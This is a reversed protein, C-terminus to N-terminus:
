ELAKCWAWASEEPVLVHAQRPGQNPYKLTEAQRLVDDCTLRGASLSGELFGALALQSCAPNESFFDHGVNEMRLLVSHANKQAMLTYDREQVEFPMLPDHSGGALLVPVTIRGLGEKVDFAEESFPSDVFAACNKARASVASSKLAGEPLAGVVSATLLDHCVIFSNALRNFTSQILPPPSSKHGTPGTPLAPLSDAIPQPHHGGLNAFGEILRPINQTQGKYTKINERMYALFDDYRFQQGNEKVNKGADLMDFFVGLTKEDISQLVREVAQKKAHAQLVFGLTDSAGNVAIVKSVNGPYRAAYGLALHAGYSHGLLIIKKQRIVFERLAELDAIHHRTRFNDLRASHADSERLAGSRGTGRQDYFLLNYRNAHPIFEPLDLYDRLDGGPGGNLIVIVERGPVFDGHWQYFLRLPATASTLLSPTSTPASQSLADLTLGVQLCGARFGADALPCSDEKAPKVLHTTEVQAGWADQVAVGQCLLVTCLAALSWLYKAIRPSTWM